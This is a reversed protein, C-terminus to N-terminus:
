SIMFFYSDAVFLHFLSEYNLLFPMYIVPIEMLYPELPNTSKVLCHWPIAILNAKIKNHNMKNKISFNLVKNLVQGCGKQTQKIGKERQVPRKRIVTVSNVRRPDFTWINQDNYRCMASHAVVHFPITVKGIIGNSRLVSVSRIRKTEVSFIGSSSLIDSQSVWLRRQQFDEEESFQM